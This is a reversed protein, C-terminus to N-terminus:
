YFAVMSRDGYQENYEDTPEGHYWGIVESMFIDGDILVHEMIFTTDTAEAYCGEREVTVNANHVDQMYQIYCNAAIGVYKNSKIGDYLWHSNPVALLTVADFDDFMTKNGFTRIHDFATVTTYEDSINVYLVCKDDPIWVPYVKVWNNGGMYVEESVGVTYNKIM